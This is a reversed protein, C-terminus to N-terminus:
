LRSWMARARGSEVWSCPCFDGTKQWDHLQSCAWFKLVSLLRSKQRTSSNKSHDCRGIWSLQIPRHSWELFEDVRCFLRKSETKFNQASLGCRGVGTSDPRAISDSSLMSWMARARGSEVWSSLFRWNETLRSTTFMSLIKLSLAFSKQNCKSTNLAM